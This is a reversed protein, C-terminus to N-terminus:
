LHEQVDVCHYKTADLINHDRDAATVCMTTAGDRASTSAAEKTVYTPYEDHRHWRGQEVDFESQANRGVQEVNYSEGWWAHFHNKSVDPTFNSEYTISLEDGNKEVSVIRVECGDVPCANPMASQAVAEAVFFVAAAGLALAGHCLQSSSNLPM